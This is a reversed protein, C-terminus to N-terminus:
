LIIDLGYDRLCLDRFNEIIDALGMVDLDLYLDHYDKFTKCKFLIWARVAKVYDEHSINGRLKSVFDEYSPLKKCKLKELSFGSM